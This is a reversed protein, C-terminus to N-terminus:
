PTSGSAKAPDGSSPWTVRSALPLTVHVKAPSADSLGYIALATHVQSSQIIGAFAAGFGSIGYVLTKTIRTRHGSLYAARENDGIAAVLLGLPTRRQIFIM